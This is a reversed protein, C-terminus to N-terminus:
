LSQDLLRRQRWVPASVPFLVRGPSILSLHQAAAIRQRQAGERLVHLAHGPTVAQGMFRRSGGEARSAERTWWQAVRDAEPWPLDEDPDLAVDDDDPDDSPGVGKLPLPPRDLDLLALDAGTILSFAEGALRASRPDRMGEILWPVLATLGAHGIGQIAARSATRQSLLPTLLAQAGSADMAKLVRRLAREQWPGASAGMSALMAIAQDRDGLLLASAAAWYRCAPAADKSARLCDGILDRRGLEGAARLARARLVPDPDEMAPALAPGPDARHMACCVIGLRRRLPSNSAQLLAPMVGRLFQPSAWGFAAELAPQHVPAAEALSILRDLGLRDGAELALLALLALPWSQDGALLRRCALEGAEGAVRLGDVHASVREDLMGLDDLRYHPQRTALARLQWLFAAEEAHTEAIDDYRDPAM